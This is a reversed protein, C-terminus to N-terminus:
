EARRSYIGVIRAILVAVYLVGTVGELIALSQTVHTAPTIDGYGITTLTMFSYFIFNRWGLAPDQGEVNLRFSGPQLTEIFDYGTGFTVGLLLYVCVIGYISNGTVKKSRIVALVLATLFLLRHTRVAYVGATLLLLSMMGGLSVGRITNGFYPYTILLTALALMLWLFQGTAEDPVSDEPRTM